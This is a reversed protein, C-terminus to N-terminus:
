ATKKPPKTKRSRTQPASPKTNPIHSEKTLFLRINSWNAVVFTILAVILGLIAWWRPDIGLITNIKLDIKTKAYFEDGTIESQIVQEGSANDKPFLIWEFEAPTKIGLTILQASDNSPQFEFAPADLNFKLRQLQLPMLAIAWTNSMFKDVIEAQMKLSISQGSNIALRSRDAQGSLLVPYVPIGNLAIVSDIKPPYTFCGSQSIASNLQDPAILYLPADSEYAVHSGIRVYGNGDKDYLMSECEATLSVPTLNVNPKTYLELLLAISFISLLLKRTM